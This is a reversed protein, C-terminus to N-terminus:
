VMAIFNSQIASPELHVVSYLVKKTNKKSHLGVAQQYSDQRRPPHEIGLFFIHNRQVNKKGNKCIYTVIM